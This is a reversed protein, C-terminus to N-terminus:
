FPFRAALPLARGPRIKDLTGTQRQGVALTGSITQSSSTRLTFSGSGGNATLTVSLSTVSGSAIVPGFTSPQSFMPFGIAVGSDASQGPLPGGSQTAAIAFCGNAIPGAGGNVAYIGSWLYVPIGMPTPTPSPLPTPTASVPSFLNVAFVANSPDVSFVGTSPNYTAYLTMSTYTGPLAQNVCTLSPNPTPTPTPIPTPTGIPTPTPSVSQPVTQQYSSSGGCAVSSLIAALATGASALQM